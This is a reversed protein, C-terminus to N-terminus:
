GFRGPAAVVPQHGVSMAGHRRAPIVTSPSANGHLHGHHPLTVVAVHRWGAQPEVCLFLNATGNREYEYDYKAVQGAQPPLPERTEKILQKNTEDFNVQPREADYPTAHLDLVDEM